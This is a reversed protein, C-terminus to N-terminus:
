RMSKVAAYQGSSILSSPHPIGNYVYVWCELERGNLLLAQTRTRIFLSRPIEDPYFGEYQDLSSIIDEDDPLEFIWGSIMADSSRDLIAGPYDGLDYLRGRIQGQGIVQMQDVAESIEDPAYEPLLTGYVFLYDSMKWVKPLANLKEDGKKLLMSLNEYGNEPNDIYRRVREHRNLCKLYYDFLAEVDEDRLQTSKKLYAVLEFFNLYDTFEAKEEIVLSNVSDSNAPVDLADRIKKYEGKEYFKEYLNSAWRTRELRSNRRYVWLAGLAAIIAVVHYVIEIVTKWNDL